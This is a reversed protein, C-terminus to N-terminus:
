EREDRPGRNSGSIEVEVWGRKDQHLIKAWPRQTCADLANKLTAVDAAVAAAVQTGGGITENRFLGERSKASSGRYFVLSNRVLVIAFACAKVTPDTARRIGFRRRGLVESTPVEM